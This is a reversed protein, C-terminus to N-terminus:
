IGVRGRYGQGVEKIESKIRCFSSLLLEPWMSHLSFKRFYNMCVNLGTIICMITVQYMNNTAEITESGDESKGNIYSVVSAEWNM